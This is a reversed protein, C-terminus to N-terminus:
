HIFTIACNKKHCFEFLTTKSHKERSHFFPLKTNLSPNRTLFICKTLACKDICFDLLDPIIQHWAGSNEHIGSMNVFVSLDLAESKWKQGSIEFVEANDNIREKM